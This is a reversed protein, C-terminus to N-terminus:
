SAITMDMQMCYQHLLDHGERGVSSWFRSVCDSPWTLIVHPTALEQSDSIPTGWSMIEKYKNNQLVQYNKLLLSAYKSMESIVVSM